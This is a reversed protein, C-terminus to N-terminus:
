GSFSINETVAAVYYLTAMELKDEYASSVM